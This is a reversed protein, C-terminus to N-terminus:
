DVSSLHKSNSNPTQINNSHSKINIQPEAKVISLVIGEGVVQDLVEALLCLRLDMLLIESCISFGSRMSMARGARGLLANGDVHDPVERTLDRQEADAQPV